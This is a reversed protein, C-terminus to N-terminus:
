LTGFFGGTENIDAGSSLLAIVLDKLGLRAAWYLPKAAWHFTQHNPINRDSKYVQLWPLFHSGTFLDMMADLLDPGAATLAAVHTPWSRAAYDLFAYRIFRDSLEEWSECITSFSPLLLYKLAVLAAHAHTSASDVMFSGADMSVLFDQVSRHSVVVTSQHKGPASEVVLLGRALLAVEAVDTVIDDDELAGSETNVALLCISLKGVTM